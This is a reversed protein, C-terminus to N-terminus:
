LSTSSRNQANYERKQTNSFIVFLLSCSQALIWILGFSELRANTFSWNGLGISVFCIIFYALVVKGIAEQIRLNAIKVNLIGAPIVSLALYKLLNEGNAAYDNGFLYLIPKSLLIITGALMFNIILTALLANSTLNRLKHQNHIGEVLLSLSIASSVMILIGYINWAIFFYATDSLGLNVAIMQPMIQFPLDHLLNGIVSGFTYNKILNWHEFRINPRFFFNPILRPIAVFIAYISAIANPLWYSLLLASLSSNRLVLTVIIIRLSGAIINMVLLSAGGRTAVLVPYILQMTMISAALLIFDISLFIDDSLQELIPYINRGGLFFLFVLILMISFALTWTFNIFNRKDEVEPLYRTISFTFGFQSLTTILQTISILLVFIGVQESTYFQSLIWWFLAGYVSISITNLLFFASQSFLSIEKKSSISFRIFPM